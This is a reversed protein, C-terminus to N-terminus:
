RAAKMFDNLSKRNAVQKKKWDASVPVPKMPFANHSVRKEVVNGCDHFRQGDEMTTDKVDVWTSCWACWWGFTKVTM